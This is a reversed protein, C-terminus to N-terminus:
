IRRQPKLSIAVTGRSELVAVALERGFIAIVTATCAALSNMVVIAKLTFGSVGRDLM